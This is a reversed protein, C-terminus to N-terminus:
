RGDKGKLGKYFGIAWYSMASILLPTLLFAILGEQANSQFVRKQIAVTRYPILALSLFPFSRLWSGRGGGSARLVGSWFGLKTLHSCVTAWLSRHIHSVGTKGSFYLGGSFAESLRLDESMRLDSDFGPSDLFDSRRILLNSSSLYPRFGDALGPLFESFESWHLIKSALQSPNSNRVCGGILQIQGDSHMRRHFAVLWDPDLSADADVFALFEGCAEDAGLNRAAGPFLREDSSLVRVDPWTSRIWAAIDEKSSDVLLIESKLSARQELISKLTFGVTRRSKYCPVIYSVDIGRSRHKAKTM